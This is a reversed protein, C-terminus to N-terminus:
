DVGNPKNMIQCVLQNREMCLFWLNPIEGDRGGCRFKLTVKYWIRAYESSRLDFVSGHAIECSQKDGVPGVPFVVSVYGRLALNLAEIEDAHLDADPTGLYIPEAGAITTNLLTFCFIAFFLITAVFGSASDRVPLLRNEVARVRNFM